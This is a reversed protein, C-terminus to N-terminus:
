LRASWVAGYLLNTYGLYTCCTLMFSGWHSQCLPVVLKLDKLLFISPHVMMLIFAMSVCLVPGYREMYTGRTAQGGLYVYCQVLNSLGTLMAAFQM